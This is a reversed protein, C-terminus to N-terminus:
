IRDSNFGNNEEEKYGIKIFLEKEDFNKMAFTVLRKKMEIKVERRIDGPM